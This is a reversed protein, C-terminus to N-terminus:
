VLDPHYFTAQQSTKVTIRKPVSQSWLLAPTRLVVVALGHICALNCGGCRRTAGAAATCAALLPLSHV